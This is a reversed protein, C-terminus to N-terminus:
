EIIHQPKTVLANEKAVTFAEFVVHWRDRRKLNGKFDSMMLGKLRQLAAEPDRNYFMVDVREDLVRAGRPIYSGCDALWCDNVVVTGAQPRQM